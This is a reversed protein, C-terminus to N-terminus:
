TNEVDGIVLIGRDVLGRLITVGYDFAQQPQPHNLQDVVQQLHIYCTQGPFQDIREILAYTVANIEMFKVADESDRYVVLYTPNDSVVQPQNEPSIQHVPFQYVLPYALTSVQVLGSMMADDGLQCTPILEGEALMLVMEIWEYHALEQIFIPDDIANDRDANLYEIFHEPISTFYPSESRNKCFYDQVLDLWKDNKLISKLVPFTSSLFGEVNNFFLERYVAMRREEVDAPRPFQHPDRIYASFEFQKKQFAPLDPMSYGHM